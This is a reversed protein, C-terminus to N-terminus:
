FEKSCHDEMVFDTLTCLMATIVPPIDCLFMRWFLLYSAEV